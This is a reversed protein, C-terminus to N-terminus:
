STRVATLMQTDRSSSADSSGKCPACIKADHVDPDAVDHVEVLRKGMWQNAKM